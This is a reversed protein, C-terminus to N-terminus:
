GNLPSTRKLCKRCVGDVRIEVNQIVGPYTRELQAPDFLLSQPSLCEMSGCYKCYFHPHPYHHENPALGYYFARGGGSLREVIGNEVLLDLARYVTVRNIHNNRILIEFIEQANLPSNNSGIVELILLRRPTTKLGANELLQGYNCHHCM